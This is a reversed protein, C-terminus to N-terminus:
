KKFGVACWFPAQLSFRVDDLGANEMMNQIQEKTFRKELRTGFRDLADTRMSYLSRSRYASLPWSHVSVGARELGKAARALPFYVFVAVLQCLIYKVRYPLRSILRRILDSTRWLGKFWVPQNDFAYYLYVLLPAGPKLKRACDVLGQQTDPIHHLVGLAYGFDMSNDAFPLDDVSCRHFSCNSFHRLNKRTVNIADSPDVCHLHGVRPAVLVAWRGSGCGVDFGVANSLLRQWPFLAFYAEFQQKRESDSLVSQDFAEWEKGFDVVVDHDANDAADNKRSM